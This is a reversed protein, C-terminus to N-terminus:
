RLEVALGGDDSFSREISSPWISPNMEMKKETRGLLECGGNTYFRANSEYVDGTGYARWRKAVLTPFSKPM